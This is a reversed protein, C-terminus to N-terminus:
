EELFILEHTLLKRLHGVEVGQTLGHLFGLADQLVDELLPLSRLDVLLKAHWVDQLPRKQLEELAISQARVADRVDIWQHCQLTYAHHSVATQM